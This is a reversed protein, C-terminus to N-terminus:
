KIIGGIKRIELPSSGRHEKFARSFHQSSKFGLKESIENVPISTERLLRDAENWKVEKFLRITSMGSQEKSHNDLSSESMHFAKSFDTRNLSCHVNQRMFNLLSLFSHDSFLLSENAQLMKQVFQLLTENVPFRLNEQIYYMFLLCTLEVMEHTPKLQIVLNNRNKTSIASNLFIYLAKSNCNKQRQSQETSFNLYFHHDPFDSKTPVDQIVALSIGSHSISLFPEKQPDFFYVTKISLM